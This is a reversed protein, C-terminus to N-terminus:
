LETPGVVLGLRDAGRRLRGDTTVVRCGLLRALALYEVDYTKAVGLEDAVAWTESGLRAPARRRIGSGAFRALARDAFARTAARRWVAEHLVSRVESWLLPPALLEHGAVVAFGEDRSCADLAMSADIVLM